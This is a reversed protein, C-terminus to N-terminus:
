WKINRDFSIFTAVEDNIRRFIQRRRFRKNTLFFTEIALVANFSSRDLLDMGAYFQVSNKVLYRITRSFVDKLHLSKCLCIAFSVILVNLANFAMFCCIVRLFTESSFYTDELFERDMSICLLLAPLRPAFM